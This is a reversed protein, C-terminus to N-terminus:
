FRRHTLKNTASDGIQCPVGGYQMVGNPGAGILEGNLGQAAEPVSRSTQPAGADRNRAMNAVLIKMAWIHM